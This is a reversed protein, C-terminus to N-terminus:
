DRRASERRAPCLLARKLCSTSLIRRGNSHKEQAACEVPSSTTNSRAHGERCPLPASPPRAYLASRGTTRARWRWGMFHRNAALGLLSPGFLEGIMRLPKFRQAAIEIGDGAHDEGQGIAAARSLFPTWLDQTNGFVDGMHDDERCRVLCVVDGALGKDYIAPPVACWGQTPTWYRGLVDIRLAIFLVASRQL